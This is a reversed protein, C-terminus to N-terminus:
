MKKQDKKEVKKKKKIPMVAIHEILKRREESQRIDYFHRIIGLTDVLAVSFLNPLKINEAVEEGGRLILWREREKPSLHQAYNATFTSDTTLDFTFFHLNDIEEQLQETRSLARIVSLVSDRSDMSLWSAIRIQGTYVAADTLTNSNYNKLMFPPFNGLNAKLEGYFARGRELGKMNVFFSILPFLVIVGVLLWMQLTKFRNKPIETSTM